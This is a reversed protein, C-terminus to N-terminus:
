KRIVLLDEIACDLALCLGLLRDSKLDRPMVVQVKLRSVSKPTVGLAKALAVGSVRREAMMQALRWEIYPKMPM